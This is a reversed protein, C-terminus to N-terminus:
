EHLQPAADPNMQYCARDRGHVRHGGVQAEGEAREQFGAAEGEDGDECQGDADAGRRRHEAGQAGEDDLGEVVGIRVLDHV